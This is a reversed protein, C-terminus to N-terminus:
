FLIKHLKRIGTVDKVYRATGKFAYNAIIEQSEIIHDKDAKQLWNKVNRPGAHYAALALTPDGGFRDLMQKLYRCGLDLNVAPERLRELKFDDEGMATALELATGPMIQMLGVANRSSRAAPKYHSEVFVVSAVLLPDLGHRQAAEGVLNRYEPPFVAAQLLKFGAVALCVAGMLICAAVVAYRKTIIKLM